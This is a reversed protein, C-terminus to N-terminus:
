KALKKEWKLIAKRVESPRTSGSSRKAQISAHLGLINRFSEDFRNSFSKVEELSLDRFYKGKEICYRVIQGVIEHAQRFPVGKKVLFEALDLSSSFDEEGQLFEEFFRVEPLLEIMVDLTSKITDVSDFIREKDEQLDRNYTLPLGKVLILLSTLNGILRGSKGRTLELSDPNKKQPMASSGTSFADPLEMFGFEFTSWLIMDESLRSLHVGLISLHSAAEIVFDRDSVADMSNDSVRDFQLERAVFARDIAFTTGALACSGLPLVNMRIRAQHLREWDREFMELYAALHHALLVPQARQLHTYGPIITKSYKKSLKLLARQLDRIMGCIWQIEERLYMKLDLVVQDNRSRATHLRDATEGIMKRLVSEINTHVDELKEDWTFQSFQVRRLIQKLGGVIKQAEKSSIIKCRELMKAHVISGKIDYVALRQDFHVSAGFKEMLPHTSGKFRGGWMKREKKNKREEHSV